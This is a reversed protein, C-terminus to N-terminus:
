GVEDPGSIIPVQWRQHANVYRLVIEADEPELDRLIRLIPNLAKKGLQYLREFEQDELEPGFLKVVEAM